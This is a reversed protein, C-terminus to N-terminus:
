AIRTAKLTIDGPTSDDARRGSIYGPTNPYVIFSYTSTSSEVIYDMCILEFYSVTNTNYWRINSSSSNAGNNFGTLSLLPTKTITVAVTGNIGTIVARGYICWVGPYLSLTGITNNSTSLTSSQAL